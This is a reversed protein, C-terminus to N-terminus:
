RTFIDTSIFLFCKLPHGEKEKTAYFKIYKHMISAASFAHM